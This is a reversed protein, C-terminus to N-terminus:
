IVGDSLDNIEDDSLGLIQKLVYQNDEGYNPAGRGLTGGQTAPTRGYRIPVERVPWTGIETQPCEVLWQLHALQPDQEVRDEATQCVGARVGRQQLLQMAEFPDRGSTWTEVLRDLEDQNALRLDLTAFKPDDIWAPRGLAERFRHWEEDGFVAIALWRDAGRCRYAGHPAAPKYPSRNGTRMYPRGNVQADLYATGTYAIGSEVQVADIWIGHGTRRQYELGALMALALNYAGTWDSYSYGWGAPPYPEPLGVM